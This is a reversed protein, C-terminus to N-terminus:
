IQRGSILKASALEVRYMAARFGKEDLGPRTSALSSYKNRAARSYIGSIERGARVGVV